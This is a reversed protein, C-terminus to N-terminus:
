SLLSPYGLYKLEQVWTPSVSSAGQEQSEGPGARALAVMEPSHVLSHFVDRVEERQTVKVRLYIFQHAFSYDLMHSKARHSAHM